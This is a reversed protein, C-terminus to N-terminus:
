GCVPAGSIQGAKVEIRKPEPRPARPVEVTLVGNEFSAAIGDAQVYPGSGSGGTV